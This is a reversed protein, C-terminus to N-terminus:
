FNIKYKLIYTAADKSDAESEFLVGYMHLQKIGQQSIENSLKELLKQHNEKRLAIDYEVTIKAAHTEALYVAYGGGLAIISAILVQYKAISKGM